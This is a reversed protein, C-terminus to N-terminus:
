TIYGKYKHDILLFLHLLFAATDGINFGHLNFFPKTVGVARWAVFASLTSSILVLLWTLFDKNSLMCKLVCLEYIILLAGQYKNMQVQIIM